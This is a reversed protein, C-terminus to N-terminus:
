HASPEKKGSLTVMKYIFYSMGAFIFLITFASWLGIQSFLIEKM